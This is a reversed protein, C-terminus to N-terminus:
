ELVWSLQDVPLGDHRGMVKSEPLVMVVEAGCGFTSRLPAREPHDAQGEDGHQEFQPDPHSVPEM